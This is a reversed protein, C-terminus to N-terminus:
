DNTQEKDLNVNVEFVESQYEHRLMAYVKAEIKKPLEEKMERNVEEVANNIKEELRDEFQQVIYSCLAPELSQIFEDKGFKILAM